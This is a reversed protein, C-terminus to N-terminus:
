VAPSCDRALLRAPNELTMQRLDYDSVGVERLTPLVYRVLRCYGDGGYRRLQIKLWTDTGLVIQKSYGAQVLAVLGALRQWDTGYTWDRFEADYSEGFCDVSLNVGVDLLEKAYDLRLGWTAPDRILTKLSHEFFFVQTHAIIVRSLDMGEEQLIKVVRRGDAGIVSFIGPHITVSLGTALATRAVARLMKEEQETLTSVAAKLHGARIGTDEIGQEVERRMHDCYQDITMSRYQAPWSAEVYLGTTVVIHVGSARSIRQIAAVDLRLGPVSMELMARGGSAKFEAVEQTVAPEDDIKLGDWTLVFNRRLLGVNELSVKDDVSVPVDRPLRDEFGVRAVSGDCMIHEHMSTLGLQGPDIPGLVTMVQKM